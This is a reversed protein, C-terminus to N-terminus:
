SASTATPILAPHGELAQRMIATVEEDDLQPFDEYFQGVARFHSPATLYVLEDCHEKLEEVRDGPLVPLAVIIEHPHEARVVELAAMMTSGLLRSRRGGLLMREHSYFM